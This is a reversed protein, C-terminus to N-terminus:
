LQPRFEVGPATFWKLKRDVLRSNLGEPVQFGPTVNLALGGTEDNQGSEIKTLVRVADHYLILQREEDKLDILTGELMMQPATGVTRLPESAQLSETAGAPKIVELIGRALATELKAVNRFITERHVQIEELGHFLRDRAHDLQEYLQASGGVCALAHKMGGRSGRHDEGAPHDCTECSARDAVHVRNHLLDGIAELGIWHSLFRNLDDLQGVGVTYWRIALAVREQARDGLAAIGERIKSLLEVELPLNASMGMADYSYARIRYRGGLDIRQLVCEVRPLNAKVGMTFCMLATWTMSLEKAFTEAADMSEFNGSTVVKVGRPIKFGSAHDDYVGLIDLLPAESVGLCQTPPLRIELPIMTTIFTEAM